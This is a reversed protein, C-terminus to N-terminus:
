RRCSHMYNSPLWATLSHENHTCITLPYELVHHCWFFLYVFLICLFWFSRLKPSCIKLHSQRFLIWNFVAIQSNKHCLFGVSLIIQLVFLLGFHHLTCFALDSNNVPFRCSDTHRKHIVEIEFYNSAMQCPDSKKLAWNLFKFHFLLFNDTKKKKKKKKFLAVASLFFFGIGLIVELSIRILILVCFGNWKANIHSKANVFRSLFLLVLLRLLSIFINVISFLVKWFHFDVSHRAKSVSWLSTLFNRTSYIHICM